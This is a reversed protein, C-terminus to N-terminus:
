QAASRTKRLNSALNIVGFSNNCILFTKSSAFSSRFDNKCFRKVSKFSLASAHYGPALTMSEDSYSSPSRIIGPPYCSSNNVALRSLASWDASIRSAHTNVAPERTSTTSMPNVRCSRPFESSEAPCFVSATTPAAKGMILPRTRVIPFLRHM